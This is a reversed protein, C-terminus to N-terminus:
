LGEKRAELDITEYDARLEGESKSPPTVRDGELRGAKTCAEEFEGLADRPVFIRQGRRVHRLRIHHGGVKTGRTIWRHVSSVAVQLYAAAEKVSLLVAPTAVGTSCLLFPDPIDSM